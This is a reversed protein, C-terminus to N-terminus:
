HTALYLVLPRLFTSWHGLFSWPQSCASPLRFCFGSPLYCSLHRPPWKFSHLLCHLSVNKSQTLALSRSLSLLESPLSEQARASIAMLFYCIKESSGGWFFCLDLNEHLIVWSEFTPEILLCYCQMVSVFCIIFFVVHTQGWWM